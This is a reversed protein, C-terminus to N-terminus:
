IKASVPQPCVPANYRGSCSSTAEPEVIAVEPELMADPLVCFTSLSGDLGSLDLSGCAFSSTSLPSLKPKSWFM